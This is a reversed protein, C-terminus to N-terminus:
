VLQVRYGLNFRSHVVTVRIALSPKMGTHHLPHEHWTGCPRCSELDPTTFRALVRPRVERFAKCYASAIAGSGSLCEVGLGDELGIVDTLRWRVEGSELTM